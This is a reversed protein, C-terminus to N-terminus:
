FHRYFVLVTSIPSKEASNIVLFYSSVSFNHFLYIEFLDPHQDFRIQLQQGVTM